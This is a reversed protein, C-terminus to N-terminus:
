PFLSRGERWQPSAWLGLFPGSLSGELLPGHPSPPVPNTPDAKKSYPSPRPPPHDPTSGGQKQPNKKTKVSGIWLDGLLTRISM